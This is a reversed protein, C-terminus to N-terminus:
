EYHNSVEEVRVKVSEIMTKSEDPNIVKIGKHDLPTLIIRYGLKRGLDMAYEDKRNGKLLHLRYQPMAQVDGLNVAAELYNIAMRLKDAVIEGLKRQAISHNTCLKEVQKSSYIVELHGGDHVELYM